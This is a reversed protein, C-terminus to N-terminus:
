FHFCGGKLRLVLHITSESQIKYDALTKGNELQKGGYVLRQQDPPVGEKEQVKQKLSEVTENPDVELPITKGTLTYVLIQM